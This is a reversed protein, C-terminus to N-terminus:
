NRGCDCQPSILFFLEQYQAPCCPYTLHDVFSLQWLVLLFRTTLLLGARYLVASKQQWHFWHSVTLFIAVVGYRLICIVIVIIQFNSHADPTPLVGVAPTLILPADEFFLPEM